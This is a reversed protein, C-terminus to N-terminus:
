DTYRIPLADVLLREQATPERRGTVTLRALHEKNGTDPLVTTSVEFGICRLALRAFMTAACCGIHLERGTPDVVSPNRSPDAYVDIGSDDIAFSWPQSNHMSPALTAAGVATRLDRTSVEVPMAIEEDTNQPTTTM